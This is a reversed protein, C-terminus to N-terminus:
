AIGPVRKSWRDLEADIDPIGVQWKSATTLSYSGGQDVSFTTARDPIASTPENLRMRLYRLAATKVKGPPRDHGHEWEVVVNDHCSPLGTGHILGSDDVTLATLETATLATFTVGDSDYVRVSRVVRPRPTPLMVARGRASLRERRYRPVFAVDCIREFDDEVERRAVLIAADTYKATNGLTADSNRADALSFVYGGVVEVLTTHASSDGADTWTATWMGLSATNAATVAVTRAASGTGATATGTSLIVTGDATTVGVTVAGAPATATGESDVNQFSLTAAVGRLIRQDAVSAAM